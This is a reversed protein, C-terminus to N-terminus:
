EPFQPLAPANQPFQLLPPAAGSQPDRSTPPPCRQGLLEVLVQESRAAGRKAQALLPRLQELTM